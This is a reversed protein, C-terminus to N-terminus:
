KMWEKGQKAKPLVVILIQYTIQEDHVPEAIHLTDKKLPVGRFTGAPLYILISLVKLPTWTLFSVRYYKNCFQISLFGNAWKGM